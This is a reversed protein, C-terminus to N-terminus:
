MERIGIVEGPMMDMNRPIEILFPKGWQELNPNHRLRVPMEVIAPGVKIIEASAIQAPSNTKVLEVRQGVEPAKDADPSSYAIIERPSAQTISIISIGPLVAEGLDLHVQTVVGNFPATLVLAAWLIEMEKIRKEQVEIALRTVDLESDVASRAQEEEPLMQEFERYRLQAESLDKKAQALLVENEQIKKALANVQEQDKELEIPATLGKDLLAQTAKAELELERLCIRDPELTAKLELIRLRSQEVDLEFRRMTTVLSNKREEEELFLRNQVAILEVKPREIETQATILGAKLLTDDLVAVVEGSKVHDLLGVAVSKLRGTTTAAVTHEQSTAIGLVEFRSNRFHFLVIVVMVTALWTIIPIAHRRFRGAQWNQINPKTM